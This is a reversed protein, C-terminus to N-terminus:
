IGRRRMVAVAGLALFALSAPEPIPRGAFTKGYDDAMEGLDLIDIVGDFNADGDGFDGARGYRDALNGLDRLDVIGDLNTDAMSTGVINRILEHADGLDIHGSPALDYMADTPPVDTDRLAWLMDVDTMDVAHDSNFDGPVDLHLSLRGPTCLGDLVTELGGGDLDARHIGQDQVWYMKRGYPDIELDEFHAHGFTLLDEVNSGDLNARQIKNTDQDTWYMKGGNPDLGLGEIRDPGVVLDEVSSGDLGSRCIKNAFCDVWYMKGASLDLELDNLISVGVTVIDEIDSGDLNARQIKGTWTDTWKSCGWYIKEHDPDVALGYICDSISIVGEGNGGDLDTRGIDAGISSSAYLKGAAWDGDICSGSGSLTGIVEEVNSGNLDARYIGGCEVETWYVQGAHVRSLTSGVTALSVVMLLNLGRSM